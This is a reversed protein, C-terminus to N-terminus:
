LTKYMRNLANVKAQVDGCAESSDSLFRQIQELLFCLGLASKLDKADSALFRQAFPTYTKKLRALLKELEGGNAENNAFAWEKQSKIIRLVNEAATETAQIKSKLKLGNTLIDDLKAKKKAETSLQSGAPSSGSDCTGGKRKLAAKGKPKPSPSATDPAAPAQHSSSSTSALGPEAENEEEMMKWAEAMEERFEFRLYMYFLEDSMTDKM